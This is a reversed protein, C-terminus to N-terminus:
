LIAGYREPPVLRARRDLTAAIREIDTADDIPDFGGVEAVFDELESLLQYDLTEGGYAVRATLTTM